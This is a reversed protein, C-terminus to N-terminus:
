LFYNALKVESKKLVDRYDTAEFLKIGIKIINEVSDMDKEKLILEKTGGGQAAKVQMYLKESSSRHLWGM